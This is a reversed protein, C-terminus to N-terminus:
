RAGGVARLGGALETRKARVAERLETAAKIVDDLEREQAGLEDATIAAGGPGDDAAAEFVTATYEATEVHLRAQLRAISDSVRFGGAIRVEAGAIRALPELMRVADLPNHLRVRQTLAMWRPLPFGRDAHAYRSWDPNNVGSYKACVGADWIGLPIACTDIQADAYVKPIQQRDPEAPM